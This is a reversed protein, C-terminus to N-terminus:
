QGKLQVFVKKSSSQPKLYSFHSLPTVGVTSIPAGPTMEEHGTFGDVQKSYQSESEFYGISIPNTGKENVM